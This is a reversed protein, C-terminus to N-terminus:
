NFSADFSDDFISSPVPLIVTVDQREPECITTFEHGRAEGSLIQEKHNYKFKDIWVQYQDSLVISDKSNLRLSNFTDRDMKFNFKHKVIPESCIPDYTIGNQGIGQFSLDLENINFDITTDPGFNFSTSYALVYPVILGDDPINVLPSVIEVCRSITSETGILFVDFLPQGGEYRVPEGSLDFTFGCIFVVQSVGVGFSVTADYCIRMTITGTTFVTSQWTYQEPVAATIFSFGDSSIVDIPADYIPRYLKQTVGAGAPFAHSETITSLLQSEFGIDQGIVIELGCFWNDLKVRNQLGENYYPEDQYQNYILVFSSSSINLSEILYIKEDWSDDNNALVAEIINSDIIYDNVLELKNDSQCEGSFAYEERAWTNTRRNEFYSPYEGPNDAKDITESGVEVGYYLKDTDVSIEHDTLCNLYRNVTNTRFYSEPEVVINGNEFGIWLNYIVNLEDFLDKFSIYVDYIDANLRLEKVLGLNLNLSSLFDSKFGVEGNFMFDIMYRMCDYVWYTQRTAIFPPAITVFLTGYQFPTAIGSQNLSQSTKLNAKQNWRNLLKSQFSNDLLDLKFYKKYLPSVYAIIGSLDLIGSFEDSWVGAQKDEVQLTCELKQCYGNSGNIKRCLMVYLDGHAEFTMNSRVRLIRNDFDRVIEPEYQKTIQFSPEYYVTGEIYLRYRM